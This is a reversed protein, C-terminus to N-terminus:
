AQAGVGRKLGQDGEVFRGENFTGLGEGVFGELGASGGVFLADGVGEAAGEGATRGVRLRKSGMM